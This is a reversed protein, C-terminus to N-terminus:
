GGTTGLYELGLLTADDRLPGSSHKVVEQILSPILDDIGARHDAVEIMEILSDLELFEGDPARAEIVGYSYLLVRDGEKLQIEAGRVADLLDLGM